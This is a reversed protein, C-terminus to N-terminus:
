SVEKFKMLKKLLAEAQTINEAVDKYEPDIFHVKEWQQVAKEMSEGDNDTFYKIGSNYHTKKFIEEYDVCGPCGERYARAQNLSARAQVLAVRDGTRKYQLFKKLAIEFHSKFLYETAGPELPPIRAKEIEEIARAYNRKRFFGLGKELHLEAREEIEVLYERCTDCRSETRSVSTFANFATPYDKKEFAAVGEQFRAMVADKFLPVEESAPGPPSGGDDGGTDVDRDASIESKPDLSTEPAGEMALEPRVSSGATQLPLILEWGAQVTDTEQIENIQKLAQILDERCSDYYAVAIESLTEGPQVLHIVYAGSPGANALRQHLSPISRQKSEEPPQSVSRGKRLAASRYRASNKYKGATKAIRGRSSAPAEPAGKSPTRHDLMCGTEGLLFIALLLVVIKKM